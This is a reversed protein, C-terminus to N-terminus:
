NKVDFIAEMNRIFAGIGAYAKNQYLIDPVITDNLQHLILYIGLM